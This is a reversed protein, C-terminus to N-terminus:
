NWYYNGQSLYQTATAIDPKEKFRVVKSIRENEMLQAQIYGYGTAPYTPTIGMTVLVDYVDAFRVCEQITYVFEKTNGIYQDSPTVIAVAAPNVKRLRHMAYAICPATNRRCLETLIQNESHIPLQAMVLHKYISSTVVLFNEKPIFDAFREYALQIFTKGIGLVDVFQKPCEERSLPWLRSGIGGAMIVCYYNKM